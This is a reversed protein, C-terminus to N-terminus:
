FLHHTKGRLVAHIDGIFMCFLAKRGGADQNLRGLNITLDIL